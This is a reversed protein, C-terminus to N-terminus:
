ASEKLLATLLEEKRNHLAVLTIQEIDTNRRHNLLVQRVYESTFGTENAIDVLKVGYFKCQTLLNM